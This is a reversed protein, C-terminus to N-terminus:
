ANHRSVTLLVPAAYLLPWAVAPVVQNIVGGKSHYALRRYAIQDLAEVGTSRSESAAADVARQAQRDLARYDAGRGRHVFVGCLAVVTGSVV